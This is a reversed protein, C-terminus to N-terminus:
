IFSVLHGVATEPDKRGSRPSQPGQSAAPGRPRKLAHRSGPLFAPSLTLATQRGCPDSAAEPSCTVPSETDDWPTRQGPAWGPVSSVARPPAPRLASRAFPWTRRAWAPLPQTGLGPLCPAEELTEAGASHLRPLASGLGGTGGRQPAATVCLPTPTHWGCLQAQPAGCVADSPGGPTLDPPGLLRRQGNGRSEPAASSPGTDKPSEGRLSQNTVCVVM